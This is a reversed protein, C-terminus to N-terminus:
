VRGLKRFMLIDYGEHVEDDQSVGLSFLFDQLEKRVLVPDVDSMKEIEIFSGLNEVEDLCIEYGNMHGIIREKKIQLSPYYGMTELLKELEVRNVVETEHEIKSLGHEGKIPKKITFIHKGNTTRIRLFFDPTLYQELNPNKIPSFEMSDQLVPEDFSCGLNKLNEVVVERNKLHAKVEIEKM